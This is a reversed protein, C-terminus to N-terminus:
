ASGVLSNEREGAGIRTIPDFMRLGLLLSVATLAWCRM